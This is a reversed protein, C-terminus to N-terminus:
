HKRTLSKPLQNSHLTHNNEVGVLRYIKNSVNLREGFPFHWGKDVFDGLKPASWKIKSPTSSNSFFNQLALLFYSDHLTCNLFFDM